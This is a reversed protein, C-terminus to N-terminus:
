ETSFNLEIYKNRENTEAQSWIANLLNERLATHGAPVPFLLPTGNFRSVLTTHCYLKVLM